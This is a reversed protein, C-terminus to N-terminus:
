LTGEPDSNDEDYSAFLAPLGVYIPTGPVEFRMVSQLSADPGCVLGTREDTDIIWINEVGMSQFDKVRKRLESFTDSPSLIEIVILPPATLIQPHPGAHDVVVDPLRVRTAAVRTRSEVGVVIKWEKRHTYFWASLAAQLNSHIWQVVPKEKLEGEIYEMDPRYSTKSYEDLSVFTATAM